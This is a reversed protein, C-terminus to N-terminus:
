TFSNNRATFKIRLVYIHFNESDKRCYIHQDPVYAREVICVDILNAIWHILVSYLLIVAHAPLLPFKESYKVSLRDTLCPQGIDASSKRSTTSTSAFLILFSGAILPIATFSLINLGAMTASSMVSIFVSVLDIIFAM